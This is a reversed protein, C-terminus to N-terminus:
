GLAGVRRAKVSSRMRERRELAKVLRIHRQHVASVANDFLTVVREYEEPEILDLIFLMKLCALASGYCDENLLNGFADISSNEVDNLYGTIMGDLTLYKGWPLMSHATFHVTKMWSDLTNM